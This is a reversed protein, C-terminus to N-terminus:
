RNENVNSFSKAKYAELTLRTHERKGSMAAVSAQKQQAMKSFFTPNRDKQQPKALNGLILFDNELITKRIRPWIM